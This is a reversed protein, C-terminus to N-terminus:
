KVFNGSWAFGVKEGPLPIVYWTGKDSKGSPDTGTFKMASPIKTGPELKNLIRNGSEADTVPDGTVRPMNRINAGEKGVILEKQM